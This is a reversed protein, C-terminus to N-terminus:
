GPRNRYWRLLGYGSITLWAIEIVFSSLNFNYFLSVLILLAGLGNLASYGPKFIDVRGTQAFGYCGLIIVVGVNGILDHWHYDM